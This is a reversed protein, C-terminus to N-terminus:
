VYRATCIYTTFVVTSVVVIVVVCFLVAVLVVTSRACWKRQVDITRARRLKVNSYMVIFLYVTCVIRCVIDRSTLRDCM